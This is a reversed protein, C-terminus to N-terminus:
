TLQKLHVAAGTWGTTEVKRTESVCILSDDVILGGAMLGDRLCRDLKDADPATTKWIEGKAHQAKNRSKPMPFRFTVDLHLPGSLAGHQDAYEKAAAAVANRWQAHGLPNSEKVFARGKAAFAKKSGQPAPVGLVNFTVFRSTEVELVYDGDPQQEFEFSGVLPPPLEGRYITM